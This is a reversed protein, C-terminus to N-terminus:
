KKGYTLGLAGIIVDAILEHGAKNPHPDAEVISTAFEAVSGKFSDANVVNEAAEFATYVDAVTYGLKEANSTVTSNLASVLADAQSALDLTEKIFDFKIDLKRYPNYVTQFIVKADPALEDLLGMITVIDSEFQEIGAATEELMEDYIQPIRIEALNPDGSSAMMYYENLKSLSPGLVNNAGISVTILDANKFINKKGDTKSATLIEILDGSTDGNVAYNEMRVSENHKSLENYILEPYRENEFDILGYGYAISDGLAIYVYGDELGATAETDSKDSTTDDTVPKMVDVDAGATDSADSAEDGCSLLCFVASIAALVLSFIRKKMKDNRKM